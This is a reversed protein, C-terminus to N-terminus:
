AALDTVATLVEAVTPRSLPNKSMCRSMLATLSVLTAQNGTVTRRNPKGGARAYAASVDSEGSALRARRIAACTAITGRADGDPRVWSWPQKGGNLLEFMACGLMYVDTASNAM